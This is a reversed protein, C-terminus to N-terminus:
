TQIQTWTQARTSVTFLLYCFLSFVADLVNAADCCLACFSVVSSNVKLEKAKHYVTSMVNRVFEDGAVPGPGNSDGM